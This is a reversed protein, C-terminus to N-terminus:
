WKTCTNMVTMIINMEVRTFRIREDSHKRVVRAVDDLIVRHRNHWGLYDMALYVDATGDNCRDNAACLRDYNYVLKYVEAIKYQYM